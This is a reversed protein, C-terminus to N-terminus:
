ASTKRMLVMVLSSAVVVTGLAVLVEFLQVKRESMQAERKEHGLGLSMEARELLDMEGMRAVRTKLSTFSDADALDSRGALRQRLMDHAFEVDVYGVDRKKALTTLIGASAPFRVQDISISVAPDPPASRSAGCSFSTAYVAGCSVDTPLPTSATITDVDAQNVFGDRNVDARGCGFGCRVGTGFNGDARVANQDAVSIQQDQNVDAPVTRSVLLRVICVTTSNLGGPFTFATSTAIVDTNSVSCYCSGDPAQPLVSLLQGGTAPVPSLLLTLHGRLWVEQSIDDEMCSAPSDTARVSTGLPMSHWSEESVPKAAYAGTAGTPGTNGNAGDAGQAGTAGTLDYTFTWAGGTCQFFRGDDVCFYLFQDLSPCSVGSIPGATNCPGSIVKKGGDGLAGTAGTSGSAGMAGSGGSAGTFGVAGSGGTAGLGDAGTSGQVGTTGQSGTSGTSGSLGQAGSAGTTGSVGSAGSTGSHGMAGSAGNM